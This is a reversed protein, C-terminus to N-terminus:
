KSQVISSTIGVCNQLGCFELGARALASIRRGPGGGSPHLARPSLRRGPRIGGEKKAVWLKRYTMKKEYVGHTKHFLGKIKMFMTVDTLKDSREKNTKLLM